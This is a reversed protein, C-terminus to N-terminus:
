LRFFTTGYTNLAIKFDFFFNFTKYYNFIYIMKKIKSWVWNLCVFIFCYYYLKFYVIILKAHSYIINNWSNLVYYIQHRHIFCVIWFPQLWSIEYITFIDIFALRLYVDSFRSQYVNYIIKINKYIVCM